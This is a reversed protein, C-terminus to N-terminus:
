WTNCDVKAYQPNFISGYLKICVPFERRLVPIRSATKWGGTNWSALDFAEVHISYTSLPNPDVIDFTKTQGFTLYGTGFNNKPGRYSTPILQLM